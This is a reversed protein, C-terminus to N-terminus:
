SRPNILRRAFGKAVAESRSRAQLKQYIRRIRNRVGDISLFVEGAIVAYSKGEALRTLVAIEGETLADEGRAEASIRRHFSAIVKRAITPSMPSGGEAAERIAQILSDGSARKLLYGVAGACLADFIKQDDEYVTCVITAIGPFHERVHQIGAIGSMGPLGIDMLVIDSEGFRKDNFADECSPFMGAIRIDPASALIASCGEMTYRNDEIISVTIV